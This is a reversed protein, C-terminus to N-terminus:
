FVLAEAFCRLVTGRTVKVRQSLRSWSVDRMKELTELALLAPLVTATRVRRMKLSQAYRLGAQVLAETRQCWERHIVMLENTASDPLYYRGVKVDDPLDRLINVLQLGKGFSRGWEVMQQTSQDCFSSGYCHLGLRTWFEGVSGAVRDCYDYLEQENQLLMQDIASANGFRVLDLRQGSIIESIVARILIAVEAPVSILWSLIPNIKELLIREGIVCNELLEIPCFFEGGRQVVHDFRDLLELRVDVAVGATDAITDSIRALLYGLSTGERMAVPLFRLSLYFSRSVGKLITTGLDATAASKMM